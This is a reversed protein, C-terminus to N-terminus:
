VGLVLLVNHTCCAGQRQDTRRVIRVKGEIEWTTVRVIVVEDVDVVHRPQNPREAFGRVAAESVGADDPDGPGPSVILGAPRRALLGEVQEVDNRLVEVEAGLEGLYQVLNYTFSDYNDIMLLRM